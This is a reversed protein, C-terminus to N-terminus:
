AVCASFPSAFPPFFVGCFSLCPFFHSGRCHDQLMGPEWEWGSKTAFNTAPRPRVWLVQHCCNHNDFYYFHPTLLSRPLDDCGDNQRQFLTHGGELISLSQEMSAHQSSQITHVHVGLIWFSARWRSVWTSSQPMTHLRESGWSGWCCLSPVLYKSPSNLFSTSCALAHGMHLYIKRWQSNKSIRQNSNKEGITEQPNM